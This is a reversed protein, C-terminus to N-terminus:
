IHKYIMVYFNYKGVDMCFQLLHVVGEKKLYQMFAYLMERSKIVTKLDVAFSSTKTDNMLFDELFEHKPVEKQINSGDKPKYTTILIILYNLINPDALVDM